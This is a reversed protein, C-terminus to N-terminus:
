SGGQVLRCASIFVSLLLSLTDPSINQLSFMKPNTSNAMYIRIIPNPILRTDQFTYYLSKPDAQTLYESQPHHHSLAESAPSDTVTSKLLPSSPVLTATRVVVSTEATADDDSPGSLCEQDHRTQYSQHHSHTIHAQFHDLRNQLLQM